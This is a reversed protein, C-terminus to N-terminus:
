NPYLVLKAFSGGPILDCTRIHHTLVKGRCWWIPLILPFFRYLHLSVYCISVPCSVTSWCSEGGGEEFNHFIKQFLPEEGWHLDMSKSFRLWPSSLSSQLSTSSLVKRLRKLKDVIKIILHTELINHVKNVYMSFPTFHHMVCSTYTESSYTRKQKEPWETYM